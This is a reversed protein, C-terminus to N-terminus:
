GILSPTIERSFSKGDERIFCTPTPPRPRRPTDLWLDPEGDTPLGGGEDSHVEGVLSSWARQDGGDEDEGRNEVLMLRLLLVPLALGMTTLWGSAWGVGRTLGVGM